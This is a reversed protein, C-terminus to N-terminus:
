QLWRKFLPVRDRSVLVEEQRPPLLEIKLKGAFYSYIRGIAKLSALYQRNLRFFLAPDLQKELQELKNELPFKRGDHRVLYVIDHLTYFYAIDDVAVPLLEEGATVLLRHRYRSQTPALQELLQQMKLLQADSDQVKEQTTAKSLWYTHKELARAIDTAQIPKLLYDLSLLAFSQLAYEDFSTTFIIPSRVPVADFVEFSLGDDLQIDAFILEPAPNNLLWDVAEAVSPLVAEVEVTPHKRLLSQLHRAALDEDEIIITKM